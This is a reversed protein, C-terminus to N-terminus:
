ITSGARQVWPRKHYFPRIHVQLHECASLRKKLLVRSSHHNPLM